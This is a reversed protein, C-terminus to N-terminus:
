VSNNEGPFSFIFSVHKLRFYWDVKDFKEADEAHLNALLQSDPPSNEQVSAFYESFPFRPCRVNKDALRIVVGAETVEASNRRNTAIVM